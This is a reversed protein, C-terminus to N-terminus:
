ISDLLARYKETADEVDGGEGAATWGSWDSSAFRSVKWEGDATRDAVWDIGTLQMGEVSLVAAQVEWHEEPRGDADLGVTRNIEVDKASVRERGNADRLSFVCRLLRFDPMSAFGRGIGPPTGGANEGGGPLDATRQIDPELGRSLHGVMEWARDGAFAPQMNGAADPSMTLVADEAVLKRVRFFGRPAFFSWKVRLVRVEMGANNELSSVDSIRLNLSETPRIRGVRVEMGALNSLRREVAVRFWPSRIGAQAGGYLVAAVAIAIRIARWFLKASRTM